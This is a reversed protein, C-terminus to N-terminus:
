PLHGPFTPGSKIMRLLRARQIKNVKIARGKVEMDQWVRKQVQQGVKKRALQWARLELHLAAEREQGKIIRRQKEEANLEFDTRDLREEEPLEDNCELLSAIQAKIDELPGEIEALATEYQKREHQLEEKGKLSSWAEIEVDNQKPVTLGVLERFFETEQWPDDHGQVLDLSKTPAVPEAKTDAVALTGRGDVAAVMRGDVAVAGKQVGGATFHFLKLEGRAMTAGEGSRSPDHFSLIGDKCAAALRGSASISFSNLCLQHSTKSRKKM